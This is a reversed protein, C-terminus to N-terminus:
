QLSEFGFFELKDASTKNHVKKIPRRERKTQSLWLWLKFYIFFIVINKYLYQFIISFINFVPGIKAVKKRRNHM